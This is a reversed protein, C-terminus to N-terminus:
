MESPLDGMAKELNIKSELVQFLANLYNIESTQLDTEAVIVDLYAKVGETYQLKVINYVERAMNVNEGQEHLYYISSKYGALAQRYQAYVSLKLNIEDWDVREEQLKAKKVNDRLRFGNFIPISLQVGALSYPYAKSYLDSNSNNEFECTYNYFASVSPIFGNKYYVTNQHQLMKALKLQQYETRKEVVLPALTDVYVDQLMQATDFSVIVNRNPACGILMKLVAYKADASEAATKLQSRSNNLAITAQKYDVKDSVGGMYRHYADSQNKRLRATDDKYVNIQELSLLLDYFAKSVDAVLNIKNTITNQRSAQLSLKAVRSALLADVSFINQTANIQPYSVNNVGSLFGEMTGNVSSFVTPLQFYHEYMAYGSVQPLWGSLAISRNANAIGEDIRAQNVAPQNKLAFRICDTLTFTLTSTDAERFNGNAMGYGQSFGRTCFSCIFLFLLCSRIPKLM